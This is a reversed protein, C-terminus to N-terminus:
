KISNFGETYGIRFENICYDLGESPTLNNVACFALFILCMAIIIKKIMSYYVFSYGYTDLRKNFLFIKQMGAHVIYKNM